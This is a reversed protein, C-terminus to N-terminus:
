YGTFEDHQTQVVGNHHGTQVSLPVCSGGTKSPHSVTLKQGRSTQCLGPYDLLRVRRRLQTLRAANKSLRVQVQKCALFHEEQNEAISGLQLHIPENLWKDPRKVQEMDEQRQQHLQEVCDLHHEQWLPLM